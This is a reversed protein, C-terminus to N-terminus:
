AAHPESSAGRTKAPAGRGCLTWYAIWGTFVVIAVVAKLPAPVNPNFSFFAEFPAAIFMMIISSVMLIFADRGAERLAAGRSKRGPSILAWGMCLGAAGSLILGSIESAGHPAISVLLHPLVSSEQMDHGLAGILMGNQVLVFVTGIGFTGASLAATAIAARPNNSGYFGMAVISESLTREEHKGSRWRAFNSEAQAPVVHWRLDPRRELISAAFVIGFCFIAISAVIFAVRRRVVAAGEFLLHRAGDVASRRPRAYLQGYARGVLANLFSVLEWNGSQTRLQSLDRSASRYLRVFEALGDGSLQTASADARDCLLSLRQWEKERQAVFDLENM